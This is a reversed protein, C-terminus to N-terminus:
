IFMRGLRLGESLSKPSTLLQRGVQYGHDPNAPEVFIAPENPLTQCHKLSM